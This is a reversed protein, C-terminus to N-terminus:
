GHGQCDHGLGDVYLVFSRHVMCQCLGKLVFHKQTIEVFLTKVFGFIGLVPFKQLIKSIDRINFFTFLLFGEVRFFQFFLFFSIFLIQFNNFMAMPVFDFVVLIFLKM